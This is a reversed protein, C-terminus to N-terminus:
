FLSINVGRWPYTVGMVTLTQISQKPTLKLGMYLALTEVRNNTTKGLGWTFDVVKHGDFDYIVGGV